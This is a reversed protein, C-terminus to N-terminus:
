LTQLHVAIRKLRLCGYCLPACCTSYRQLAQNEALLTQVRSNSEVLQSQLEELCHLRLEQSNRIEESLTLQQQLADNQSVHHSFVISPSPRRFELLLRRSFVYRSRQESWSNKCRMLVNKSMACKNAFLTM